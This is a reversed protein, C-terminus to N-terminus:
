CTDCNEHSIALGSVPVAADTYVLFLANRYHYWRLSAILNPLFPLEKNRWKKQKPGLGRLEIM